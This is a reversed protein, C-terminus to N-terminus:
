YFDSRITEMHVHCNWPFPECRGILDEVDMSFPLLLNNKELYELAARFSTEIRTYFAETKVHRERGCMVAVQTFYLLLAGVAEPSIALKKFDNVAKRSRYLKLRKGRAPYFGEHVRRKYEELLAQEDPNVFFDFYEKVKPFRKYVELLHHIIAQKELSELEKRVDRLGM